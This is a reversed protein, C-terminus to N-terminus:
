SEENLKGFSIMMMVGVNNVKDYYWKMGEEQKTPSWQFQYYLRLHLAAFDAHPFFEVFLTSGFFGGEGHCRKFKVEGDTEPYFTREQETLKGFDFSLGYNMVSEVVGVQLSLYNLRARRDYNVTKGGEVGQSFWTNHQNNWTFGFYGEKEFVNELGLTIGKFGNSYDFLKSYGPHTINFEDMEMQINRLGYTYTGFKYGCVIAQSWLATSTCVGILLVIIFSSFKM